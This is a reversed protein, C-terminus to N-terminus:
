RGAEIVATMIAERTFPTMKSLDPLIPCGAHPKDRQTNKSTLHASGAWLPEHM